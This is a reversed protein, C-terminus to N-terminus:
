PLSHLQAGQCRLLHECLLCLCSARLSRKAAVPLGPMTPLHRCERLYRLRFLLGPLDQSCEQLYQCPLKGPVPQQQALVGFLLCQVSLGRLDRM